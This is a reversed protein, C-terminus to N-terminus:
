TTLLSRLERVDRVEELANVRRILNATKEAGLVPAMLDSVKTNVRETNLPNEKTGPPFRTFHSVTRGDKLTVEVMGSRPAAPDILKRDAVLQVREKVARIQPDQMREYSHSNAFSVAGDVLALAIIYQLNVDPMSSNDVIGAGDAPLRVVIREVNDVRISNERRLTLFADVASQIPYGVSYTKISTEAIWYRSGLNAVMEAPHPQSSLAELVNHDCDFVDHVGTFGAQVMTAATVGNRAGMGSFDFAKEVHENDSTWSWLGSVQQAAYSLAYRMGTEDLRALSAAAGVASFTSGVGEASRNTGRVLDPGLAMLFRCCVDYGLVVARLLDMGSRGEREAMALAAAVSSCGPHTKTILEVDDTEDAHGCMGNALAANVASTIINTGIVCSEPVGGQARVYAIAMGGPKLRSGSVMAGLTDLIHHKGELAVNPPLTRARAEVMYRALQGTIDTSANASPKASEQLFPLASIKLREAPLAAAAIMGGAGQLIRRRTQSAPMSGDSKAPNGTRHDKVNDEGTFGFRRKRQRIHLV